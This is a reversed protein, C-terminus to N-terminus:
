MGFARFGLIILASAVYWILEPTFHDLWRGRGSGRRKKATIREVDDRVPWWDVSRDVRVMGAIPTSRGHSDYFRVPERRLGMLHDSTSIEVGSRLKGGEKGSRYESM